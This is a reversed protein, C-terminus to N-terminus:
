DRELCKGTKIKKLCYIKSLRKREGLKRWIRRVEMDVWKINKRNIYTERKSELFFRFILVFLCLDLLVPFFFGLCFLHFLFSLGWEGFYFLAMSNM